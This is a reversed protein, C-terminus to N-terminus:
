TKIVSLGIRHHETLKSLMAVMRPDVAGRELDARANPPLDLKDSQLLQQVSATAGRSGAAAGDADATTADDASDAEAAPAPAPAPAPPDAVPNRESAFRAGPKVPERVAPSAATMGTRTLAKGVVAHAEGDLQGHVFRGLEFVAAGEAAAAAIVGVLPSRFERPELTHMAQGEALEAALDAVGHDACATAPDRGFEERFRPDCLLRELLDAARDIRDPSPM